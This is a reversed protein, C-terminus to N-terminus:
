RNNRTRRSVLFLDRLERHNRAMSWREEFDDGQVIQAIAALARLHLRRMDKTGILVFVAKVEPNESSFFVGKPARILMIKFDGNGKSIIHPVAVFHSIATTGDAERQRLLSVIEEQSLGPLSEHIHDAIIQWLERLKIPHEVELYSSEEMMLDFEDSVIKDRDQVIDRLEVSLDSTVLEKNTIRQILHLLAPPVPDAKARRIIYLLFGALMFGLSIMIPQLGMDVLLIIFAIIGCIQL